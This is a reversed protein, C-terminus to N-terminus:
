DFINDNEDHIKLDSIVMTYKNKRFFSIKVNINEGVINGRIGPYANRFGACPFQVYVGQGNRVNYEPINCCSTGKFSMYRNGGVLLPNYFDYLIFTYQKKDDVDFQDFLISVRKQKKLFDLNM